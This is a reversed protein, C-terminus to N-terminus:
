ISYQGVIQPLAGTPPSSRASRGPNGPRSGVLGVARLRQLIQKLFKAALQDSEALEPVQILRRKMANAIDLHTLSRLAYEGKTRLNLPNPESKM